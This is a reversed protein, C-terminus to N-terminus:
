LSSTTWRSSLENPDLPCMYAACVCSWIRINDIVKNPNRIGLHYLVSFGLTLVFIFWSPIYTYITSQKQQMNGYLNPRSLCHHLTYEWCASNPWHVQEDVKNSLSNVLFIHPSQIVLWNEGDLMGQLLPLLCGCLFVM